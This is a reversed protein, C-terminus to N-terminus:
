DSFIGFCTSHHSMKMGVIPLPPRPHTGLETDAEEPDEDVAVLYTKDLHTFKPDTLLVPPVLTVPDLTCCIRWSHGTHSLLADRFAEAFDNLGIRPSGFTYLDRLVLKITTPRRQLRLLETYCLSAYSAGLSHGQTM